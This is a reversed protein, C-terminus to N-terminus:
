KTTLKSVDEGLIIRLENGKHKGTMVIGFITIAVRIAESWSEKQFESGYKIKVIITEEM